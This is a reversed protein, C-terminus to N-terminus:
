LHDGREGLLREREALYEVSRVAPRFGLARNIALMPANTEDNTTAIQAIGNAAAWRTSALKVARGLGRGRYAAATGTFMNTGRGSVRDALLLSVAALRGDVVAGFSGDKTFFPHRWVFDLWEDYPISEIEAHAPMDRTAEEDVRHVEHPDLDRAPVLEIRPDPEEVVARPDVVSWLEARDEAFGRAAAFALGGANEDFHALTVDAGLSHLHPLVAEWLATGLGQRRHEPLVRVLAFSTQTGAFLGYSAQGDGVVRGDAEAVVYRLRVRERIAAMRALWSTRDVLELPRCVRILAVIEDADREHDIERISAM